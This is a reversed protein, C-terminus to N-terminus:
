FLIKLVNISSNGKLIKDVTPQLMVRLRNLSGVTLIFDEGSAISKVNDLGNDEDGVLLVVVKIGADKLANSMDILGQPYTVRSGDTILVIAQFYFFYDTYYCIKESMMLWSGFVQLYSGEILLRGM